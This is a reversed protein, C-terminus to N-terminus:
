GMAEHEVGEGRPPLILAAGSPQFGAAEGVSAQELARSLGRTFYAVDKPTLTAAAVQAEEDATGQPLRYCMPWVGSSEAACTERNRPQQTVVPLCELSAPIGALLTKINALISGKAASSMLTSDASASESPKELGAARWVDSQPCLLVRPPSPEMRVRRLHSLKPPFPLFNSVLSLISSLLKPEPVTLCVWTTTRSSLPLDQLPPRPILTCLPLAGGTLANRLEEVTNSTRGSM